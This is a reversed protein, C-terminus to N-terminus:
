RMVVNCCTVMLIGSQTDKLKKKVNKIRKRVEGLTKGAWASLSAPVQEIRSHIPARGGALWADSVMKGCEDNSLWLAEFRFWEM